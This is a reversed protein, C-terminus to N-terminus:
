CKHEIKNLVGTLIRVDGLIVHFGLFRTLILRFSANEELFTLISFRKESIVHHYPPLRGNRSAIIGEVLPHVPISVRVDTKKSRVEIM